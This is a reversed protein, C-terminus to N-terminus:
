SRSLAAGTQRVKVFSILIFLAFGFVCLWGFLDGLMSYLTARGKIPVDAYMIENRSGFYSQSALIKGNYDAVYSIGNYTPRVLSFGNEITRMLYGHGKLRPFDFSPSLMIDVRKEGAQRMYSAFSMDRCISLAINGYKTAVVPLVEPGKNLFVAEGGILEHGFLYRKRYDAIIRGQDDVFSHWSDGKKDNPLTVYAVSLYVNNERAIRKFAQLLTEKNVAKILLSYEQFSVIKAGGSAAETTLKEIKKLTEPIATEIRQELQDMVNAIRGDPTKFVITAVRVSKYTDPAVFPSLKVGGYALILIITASFAGVIKGSQPWQFKNQWLWAAISSVWSLLFVMGWLGTISVLQKFALDGVFYLYFVGDSDFPGELSNLFYLSTASVPFVLTASLGTFRHVLLKDAIYPLSLVLGLALSRLVNLAQVEESVGFLSWLAISLSLSFGSLTLLIGSAKNQSRIFLLIFIPAIVIAVPVFYTSRTFIFSGFGLVFWLIPLYSFRKPTSNESM